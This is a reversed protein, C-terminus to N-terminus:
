CAREQGACSIAARPGTAGRRRGRGREQRQGLVLHVRARSRRGSTAEACRWRRGRRRSSSSRNASTAVPEDVAASAQRELPAPEDARAQALLVRDLRGRQEVRRHDRVGVLAPQRRAGSRNTMLTRPTPSPWTDHTSNRVPVISAPPRRVNSAGPGVVSPAPGRVSCRARGAGVQERCSRRARGPSRRSSASARSVGAVEGRTTRQGLLSGDLPLAAGRTASRYSSAVVDVNGAVLGISERTSIGPLGASRPPM